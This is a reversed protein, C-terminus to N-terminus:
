KDRSEDLKTQNWRFGPAASLRSIWLVHGNRLHLCDIQLLVAAAAAAAALICNWQRLQLTNRCGLFMQEQFQFWFCVYAVKVCTMPHRWPTVLIFKNSVIFSHATKYVPRHLLSQLYEAPSDLAIYSPSLLQFSCSKEAGDIVCCIILWILVAWTVISQFGTLM